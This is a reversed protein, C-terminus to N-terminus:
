SFCYKWYKEADFMVFITGDENYRVATKHFASRLIGTLFTKRGLIEIAKRVGIRHVISEDEKTYMEYKTMKTSEEIQKLDCEKAGISLLYEKDKKTLKM